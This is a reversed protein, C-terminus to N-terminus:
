HRTKNDVDLSNKDTISIEKVVAEGKWEDAETDFDGEPLPLFREPDFIQVHTAAGRLIADVLPTMGEGRIEVVMANSPFPLSFTLSFVFGYGDSIVKTLYAYPVAISTQPKRVLSRKLQLLSSRSDSHAAFAKYPQLRIGTPSIAARQVAVAAGSPRYRALPDDTNQM